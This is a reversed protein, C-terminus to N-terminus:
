SYMTFICLSSNYCSHSFFCTSSRKALVVAEQCLAATNKKPTGEPALVSEKDSRKKPIISSTSASTTGASVVTAWFAPFKSSSARSEYSARYMFNWFLIFVEQDNRQQLEYDYCRVCGGM